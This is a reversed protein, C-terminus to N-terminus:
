SFLSCLRGPSIPYLSSLSSDCTPFLSHSFYRRTNWRPQIRQCFSTSPIYRQPLLITHAHVSMRVASRRFQFTMHSPDWWSKINRDDRDNRDNKDLGIRVLRIASKDAMAVKSVGRCRVVEWAILITSLLAVSSIMKDMIRDYLRYIKKKKIINSPCMTLDIKKM